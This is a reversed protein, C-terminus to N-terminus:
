ARAFHGHFGVPLGYPLWARAIPGESLRLADFINVATRKSKVDFTCGVLWGAGERHSAPDPVVIHEEVVSEDEYRYVDTAERALDFRVVANLHLTGANTDIGMCHWLHRNREGVLRPDIRPFEVIGPLAHTRITGRALDIAVHTSRAPRDRLAGKEGRMVGALGVTMVRADAHHVYDFRLMGSADEWANGFHFLFGPPLEFERQQTLDNKDIVLVRMPASAPFDLSDLFSAGSRLKATDLRMAPIVCVLYRRSLAFDHNMVLGPVKLLEAQALTGDAGIRYVMLANPGAGMNWMTGDAEIKPHASFPMAKLDRRWTVPGRTELTEPDMEYASGGEWLALLKGAHAVVSTNAPNFADPGGTSAFGEQGFATGFGPYLFRGRESEAVYKGTRVFRGRHSVGRDTFRYAQVMGDGDFLHHYRLGDREFLAPGNRYLTGRLGAPIRGEITLADTSLDGDVGQFAALWPHADLARRFGAYYADEAAFTRLALPAAGAALAALLFRRRNM